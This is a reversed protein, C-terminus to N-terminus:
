GTARAAPASSLAVGPSLTSVLPGANDGVIVNKLACELRAFEVETAPSPRMVTLPMVMAAALLPPTDDYTYSVGFECSTAIMTPPPSPSLSMPPGTIFRTGFDPPLVNPPATNKLSAPLQDRPLLRVSPRRAIPKVCVGPMMWDYSALPEYPPGM